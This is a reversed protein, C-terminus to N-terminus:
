VIEFLCCSLRINTNYMAKYDILPESTAFLNNFARDSLINRLSFFNALLIHKSLALKTAADFNLLRVNM